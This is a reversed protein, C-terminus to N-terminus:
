YILRVREQSEVKDVKNISKFNETLFNSLTKYVKKSDSEPFIGESWVLVREVDEDSLNCALLFNLIKLEIETCKEYIIEELAFIHGKFQELFDSLEVAM